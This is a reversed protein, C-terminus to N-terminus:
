FDGQSQWRRLRLDVRSRRLDAWSRRQIRENAGDRSRGAVVMASADISGCIVACAAAVGTTPEM